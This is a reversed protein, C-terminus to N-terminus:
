NMERLCERVVQRDDFHMVREKLIQYDEHGKGAILVIDGEKALALSKRIAERRGPIICYNKGNIGKEIDELIKRPEESRPNDNTIIA